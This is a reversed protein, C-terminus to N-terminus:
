VDRRLVRRLGWQGLRRLPTRFLLRGGRALPYMVPHAQRWLRAAHRDAQEEQDPDQGGEVHGCAHHGLEHYFIFEVTLGHLWRLVRGKPEEPWVLM